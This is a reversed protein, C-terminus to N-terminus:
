RGVCRTRRGIRAQAVQMEGGIRKGEREVAGRLGDTGHTRARRQRGRQLGHDGGAIRRRAPRRLVDRIAGHPTERHRICQEALEHALRRRRMHAVHQAASERQEDVVFGVGGVGRERYHVLRDIGDRRPAFERKGLSEHIRHQSAEQAFAVAQEGLNLAIRDHAPVVRL